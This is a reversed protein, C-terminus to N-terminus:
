TSVGPWSYYGSWSPQFIESNVPCQTSHEYSEYRPLPIIQGLHARSQNRRGVELPLGFLIVGNRLLLQIGSCLDVTNVPICLYGSGLLYCKYHRAGLFFNGPMHLLLFIHGMILLSFCNFIVWDCLWYM